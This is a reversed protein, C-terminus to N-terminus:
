RDIGEDGMAGFVADQWDTVVCGPGDVIPLTGAGSDVVAADFHTRAATADWCEVALAAAGDVLDGGAARVDAVGAGTPLWRVRAELLETAPRTPDPLDIDYPLRLDLRGGVGDEHLLFFRADVPMSASVDEWRVQDFRLAVSAVAGQRAYEARFAGTDDAHDPDVAALVDLDFDFAGQGDSEGLVVSAGDVLVEWADPGAGFRQVQLSYVYTAPPVKVVYLRSSVGTAPDTWPGWLCGEAECHSAPYRTIARILDLVNSIQTDLGAVLDRTLVYYAAPEAVEAAVPAPVLAVDAAVPLAELLAADAFADPDFDDFTPLQRDAFPCAAPDGDTVDAGPFAWTVFTRQFAADWCETLDVQVGAPLDGHTALVDARGPGDPLWRSRVQLLERRDLTADHDAHIDLNSTYDFTGSGDAADTYRYLASTALPVDPGQLDTFTVELARADALTYAIAIDGTHRQALPDLAHAVTLHYTWAGAGHPAAAGPVHRGSLLTVADAETATKPWGQVLYAYSGDLALDVRVRYTAPSLADTWPGWIAYTAGDTTTPALATVDELVNTIDRVLGNVQLTVARTFGYFTAQEPVLAAQQPMQISMTAADPLAQRMATVATSEASSSAEDGCAPAVLAFPVLSLALLSRRMM